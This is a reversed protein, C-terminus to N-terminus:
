LIRSVPPLILVYRRTIVWLELVRVVGGWPELLLGGKLTLKGVGDALSRIFRDM